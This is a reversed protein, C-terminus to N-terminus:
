NGSNKEAQKRKMKEERAKNDREIREMSKFIDLFREYDLSVIFSVGTEIIYGEIVGTYENQRYARLMYRGDKSLMYDLAINGALNTVQKNSQQPGELNVNSGVTVRLRDNLLQKSLSLNLDTRNTRKGTSYDEASEIDFNIDVGKILSATLNNLEQTLLKSVSQRALTGANIGGGSSEFPNEAVFRNLLLLAFVQKNMESPESRLQSLKTEVDSIVQADVQYNDEGLLEINFNVEPKLLEGSLKLVVNFPLEEKYLNTNTHTTQNEVLTLPATESVYVATLNVNAETPEGLWVIRSGKQIAFNRKIFNYSLRYEGKEIEYAGTLSVKGSKDINAALEALGQMKIYDGNGEDIIINFVAEKDAEINVALEIGKFETTNLEEFSTVSWTSDVSVSDMDVFKVIGKRDAIGPENDPLVITFNTKDNIKLTGNVVPNTASGSVELKTDFFLRGYFLGNQKKTSNLAQFDNATINLQLEFEQFDETLAMGDITLTNGTSDKVDFNSFSIGEGTFRITENDVAFDAGLMYPSFMAKHFNLEGTVSPESTHGGINLNGTLYGNTRSLTNMSLAEVTQMPLKNIILNLDLQPDEEPIMTYNGNLLLDNEKGSLKVEAAFNHTTTNNVAIDLNGVTDEKLSFNQINLNATFTPHQLLDNLQVEGNMLGDALVTDPNIFATLTAIKFDKFNAQLPANPPATNSNLILHQNEFNLDFNKIHLDNNAFRILNDNSLNWQNYNLLLSDAIFKIEYESQSPTNIETALKYRDKREADQFGLSIHAINDSADGYITSHHLQIGGSKVEEIYSYLNLQNDNTGANLNFNRVSTAGMAIAPAKLIASWGTNREFDAQLIIDELRTINPALQKLMPTEQVLVNISFDYEDISDREAETMIAFYPQIADGLISGLQLLNFKGNLSATLFDAQLNVYQGSDNKGAELKISDTGINRDATQVLTNTIYLFGDPATPDITAFNGNITTKAFLPEDSLQLAGARLSDITGEIFVAPYENRFNIVSHIDFKLNPDNMGLAINAEKNDIGANIIFNNYEYGNYVASNIVGKLTSNAADLTYGKGSVNFTATLPGYLTDNQLISGLQIEEIGLDMAYAANISDNLNAITGNAKISGLSTNLLLNLNSKNVTGKFRGTLQIHEPLTINDPLSGAPIFKRIDTETTSIENIHLDGHLKNIDPLGGLLGNIDIVTNGAGSIKFQPISLNNLSGNLHTNLYLVMDPNQLVPQESLDPAILLIDKVHVKSNSLQVSLQLNEPHSSISEISPYSASLSNKLITGPTELLFNTISAGTATYLFKGQLKNLQFGSQEKFNGKNIEGSITDTTYYLDNIHISLDDADIHAYDFGTSQRPVNNDSFKIHNENLNIKRAIIKWNDSAPDAVEQVPSQLETTSNNKANLQIFGVTQNMELMEIEILQNKLDINNTLLELEKLKVVAEMAAVEGAYQFQIDLLNVPGLKIALDNSSNDAELALSDIPITLPTKQIVTAVVGTLDIKDIEFDMKNLDFKGIDTELGTIWTEIDNGTVVDDYVLRINKLSINKISFDTTSSDESSTNEEGAFADIIYQFNFATDPLTRNVKATINELGIKNLIIRGSLIKFLSINVGIKGGYFLTDGTKDELYVNELTIDNPFGLQLRGMEFKTDIKKAVFSQVQKRIINQAFPFQILILVLLVLGLIGGILLLPVKLM